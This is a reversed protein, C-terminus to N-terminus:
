DIGRWSEKRSKGRNSHQQELTRIPRHRARLVGYTFLGLASWLLAFLLATSLFSLFTM